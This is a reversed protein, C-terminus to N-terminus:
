NNAAAGDWAISGFGDSGLHDAQGGGVGTVVNGDATLPGDETVFDQDNVALPGDDQFEISLAVDSVVTSSDGDFDTITAKVHLDAAVTAIDDFAAASAGDINHAIPQYQGIWVAGTPDVYVKFIDSGNASGVLVGDANTSLLIASGDLTKLGSDVNM